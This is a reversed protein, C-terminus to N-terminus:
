LKEIICYLLFYTYFIIIKKSQLNYVNKAIIFQIDNVNHTHPQTHINILIIKKIKKGDFKKHFHFKKYFM